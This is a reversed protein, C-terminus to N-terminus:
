LHFGPTFYLLFEKNGKAGLIPSDIVGQVKLNNLSAFNIIKEIAKKHKKPEKVIGGTGVEAKELEFQPKLLAIIWARGNQLKIVTPLVRTLSIFSTDIVALDIEDEIEKPDLYRINRRELSVIRSDQRLKWALQGYGVDIAYVKRAGRQLLCDTFGGTSAGVDLAVKDATELKFVDLAHALKVGGRSVYPIDNGKLRLSSDPLVKAGAKDARHDDVIVKGEMILAKARERSSVIGREVLLKDLRESKRAKM